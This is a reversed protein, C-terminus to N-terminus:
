KHALEMVCFGNGFPDACFAISGWDGSNTGEITGGLQTVATVCQDLDDVKIDLHIPTWHREYSRSAEGKMLPNSGDAREALYVALGDASLESYEEGKKVVECGIARTYFEIGSDMNSVDICISIKSM